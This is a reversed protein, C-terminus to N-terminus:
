LCEQTMGILPVFKNQLLHRKQSFTESTSRAPFYEQVSSWSRFTSWVKKYASGFDQCCFLPWMVAWMKKFFRFAALSAESCARLRSVVNLV